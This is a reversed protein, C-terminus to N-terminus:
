MAPVLAAAMIPLVSAGPAHWLARLLSPTASPAPAEIM